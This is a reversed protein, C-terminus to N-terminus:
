QWQVQVGITDSTANKVNLTMSSGDSAISSWSLQLDQTTGFGITHPGSANGSAPSTFGPTGTGKYVGVPLISTTTSGTSWDQAVVTLVRPMYSYPVTNSDDTLAVTGTNGANINGTAGNSRYVAGGSVYPRSSTVVDEPGVNNRLTYSTPNGGDLFGSVYGTLVSDVVSVQSPASGGTNSFLVYKPTTPGSGNDNVGTLTTIGTIAIQQGGNLVIHSDHLWQGDNASGNRRFAAGVVADQSAQNFYIGAYGNHDYLGGVIQVLTAQYLQVGWTLNWEVRVGVLNNASAGNSLYIGMVNSTVAGGLMVSDILNAVGTSNNIFESELITAVHTFQDGSPAAGLGVACGNVTVRRLGLLTGGSSIGNATPNSSCDIYIGEVSMETFGQVNLAAVAGPGPVLVPSVNISAGAEGYGMVGDGKLEGGNVFPVNEAIYTAQPLRCPKVAAICATIAASDDTGILISTPYSSIATRANAALTVHQADTFSAITTWLPAAGISVTPTGLTANGGSLSATSGSSPYGSGGYNVVVSGVGMSLSLTAGTLGCGTVPEATLSTPLYYYSGAVSVTLTGGLAGGTVTGTAQFKTGYGTTGTVTCAGNTAGSGGGAVGASVVEMLVSADAGSGSGGSVSVTPISTYGSGAASVPIASVPGTTSTTGAGPVMIAKGVQSASFVTSGASLAASGASMTFSGPIYAADGKAGFDDIANPLHGFRAALPAATSSGTATVNAASANGGAAQVAGVIRSDNGQAASGAVSGYTVSIAGNNNTITTGDPSVGGLRSSTAAPLSYTGPPQAWNGDARLYNTSGGQSAPVIGASSGAFPSLRSDNGEVATNATTGYIVSLSGGSGALGQAPIPEAPGLQASAVAPALAFAIACLLRNRM